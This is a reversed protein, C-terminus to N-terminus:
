SHTQDTNANGAKGAGHGGATLQSHSTRRVGKRFRVYLRPGFAKLGANPPNAVGNRNTVSFPNVANGPVADRLALALEPPPSTARNEPVPM